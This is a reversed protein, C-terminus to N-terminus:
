KETGSDWLKIGDKRFYYNIFVQQEGTLTLASSDHNDNYDSKGNKWNDTDTSAIFKGDKEQDTGVTKDGSTNGIYYSKGALINSATTAVYLGGVQQFYEGKLLEPKVVFIGMDVLSAIKAQGDATFHIGDTTYGSKLKYGYIPNDEQIQENIPIYGFSGSTCAAIGTHDNTSIQAMAANSQNDVMPDMVVGHREECCNDKLWQNIQIRIYELWATDNNFEITGGRTYGFWPTLPMFYIEVGAKHARQILQKFGDIIQQATPTYYDDVPYYRQLNSCNPHLLDNIGIKVFIKKVGPINLADDAFRDLMAKGELPAEDGVCDRLLENGKIASSVISVNSLGESRVRRNIQSPISNTGPKSPKAM